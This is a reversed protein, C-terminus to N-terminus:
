ENKLMYLRVNMTYYQVTGIRGRYGNNIFTLTYANKVPDYPINQNESWAFYNDNDEDNRDHWYIVGHTFKSMQQLDTFYSIDGLKSTAGLKANRDSAIIADAELARKLFDELPIQIKTSKARPM